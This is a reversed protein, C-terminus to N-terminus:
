GGRNNYHNAHRPTIICHQLDRSWMNPTETKGRHLICKNMEELSWRLLFSMIILKWEILVYVACLVAESSSSYYSPDSSWHAAHYTDM